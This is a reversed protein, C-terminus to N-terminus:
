PTVRPIKVTFVTQKENSEVEITGNHAHAICRCIYLGLGMGPAGRRPGLSPVARTLPDFLTPIARAPIRQGGNSVAITIREEDGVAEVVIPGTGHVVGNAVLNVILQHMREGDCLGILEGRAKVRIHADLHTACVEDVASHCIRELDCRDPQVPLANGLRTRTFVFLDDILVKVRERSRQLNAGARLSTPSLNQDAMIVRASNLIAGVPSRLDHALVGTFLDRIRDTISSFEPVSEAVMQDIAENFRIMEQFAATDLQCKQQWRRLVSARLARYEAVLANIQFGQAQRDDAHGRGILNFASDPDPRNGQSKDRQESNSQNGRMDAAIAILLERASNRLELSDLNVDDPAVLRAYAIWDDILGDLDAEIFDSLTM